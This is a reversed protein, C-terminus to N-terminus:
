PQAVLILKGSPKDIARPSNNASVFQTEVETDGMGPPTNCLLGARIGNSNIFAMGVAVKGDPCYVYNANKGTIASVSLDSNLAKCTFGYSIPNWGMSMGVVVQDAACAAEGYKDGGSLKPAVNYITGYVAANAPPAVTSQGVLISMLGIFIPLAFKIFHKPHAAVVKTRVLGFSM